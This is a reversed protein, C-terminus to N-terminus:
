AAKDLVGRIKKMAYKVACSMGIVSIGTVSALALIETATVMLDGFGSTLAALVEGSILSSGGSAPEAAYSVITSTLLAGSIVASSVGLRVEDMHKKALEMITAKKM